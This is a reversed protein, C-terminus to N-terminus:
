SFRAIALIAATGPFRALSLVASAIVCFLSIWDNDVDPACEFAMMQSRRLRGGMMRSRAGQAIVDVHRQISVRRLQLLAMILRM